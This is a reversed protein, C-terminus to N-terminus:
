HGKEDIKEVSCPVFPGHFSVNKNIPKARKRRERGV